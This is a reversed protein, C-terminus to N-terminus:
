IELSLNGTLKKLELNAKLYDIVASLYSQQAERLTNDSLLVDTLTAIGEKQELVSQEYIIQALKVQAATTEMTIIAVKVKHKANDILMANQETVFDLQIESNQIEIRKQNIKRKTVTGNFLPYSIQMGAFSSPFFRLFDNPKEDYGFGTQGYTGYLSVSPLRSNKLTTLESSLLQTQINAIRIDVAISNPYEFSKQYQIEPDIEMPENFAIGMSFKLANFVQEFNSLVLEHQTELQDKQLQVRSLDTGKIMLQSKLLNMNELLKITNFLNGNIFNLQHQLIQANYYLNSVEYFVQEETKQYLIEGLESAIKTTQIAGYIQPNYLPMTLQINANINHPVGFQTEKFLGEPGGFASQPMLQYPLDIFYKYDAILNVKPILNAKAEQHKQQSLELNNRGIQLNKNYVQATDICQQLSWVQAHVPFITAIFIAFTLFVKPIHINVLM